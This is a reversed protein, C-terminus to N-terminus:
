PMDGAALSRAWLDDMLASALMANQATGDGGVEQVLDPRLLFVAGGVALQMKGKLGREDIETRVKFINLATTHMMASICVVRAGSELAADVFYTAPVDNGLDRVTWGSSCLFASVMKRGLSHYDDEINGIVVNGKSTLESSFGLGSSVARQFIEEAVKAAVYGHALSVPRGDGYAQGIQLLVPELIKTIAGLYGNVEGWETLIRIARDRDSDMIADMTERIAETQM